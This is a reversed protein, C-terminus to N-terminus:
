HKMEAEKKQLEAQIKNYLEIKTELDMGEEYDGLDMGRYRFNGVPLKVLQSVFEKPTREFRRQLDYEKLANGVIGSRVKKILEDSFNSQCERM